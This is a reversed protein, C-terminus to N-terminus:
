KNWYTLMKITQAPSCWVGSVTKGTSFSPPTMVERTRSAVDRWICGLTRRAARAAFAARYAAPQRPQLPCQESPNLTNDVLGEAAKEAFSSEIGNARLRYQYIPKSQGLQRFVQPKPISELSM